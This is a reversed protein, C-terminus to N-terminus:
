IVMVWLFFCVSWHADKLCSAEVQVFILEVIVLRVKWHIVSLSVIVISVVLWSETLLNLVSIQQLYVPVVPTNMLGFFTQLMFFSLLKNWVLYNGLLFSLNLRWLFLYSLYVFFWIMVLWNCVDLLLLCWSRSNILCDLLRRIGLHLSCLANSHLSWRYSSKTRQLDICIILLMLVRRTRVFCCCRGFWNLCWVEKPRHLWLFSHDKVLLLDIIDLVALHLIICNKLSSSMVLLDCWRRTSAHRIFWECTTGRFLLLELM